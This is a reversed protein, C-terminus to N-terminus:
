RSEETAPSRYFHDWRQRRELAARTGETVFWRRCEELDHDTNISLAAFGEPPILMWGGASWPYHGPEWHRVLWLSYRATTALRENEKQIVQILYPVAAPDGLVGMNYLAEIRLGEDRAETAMEEFVLCQGRDPLRALVAMAVLADHAPGTRAAAALQEYLKQERRRETHDPDLIDEPYHLDLPQSTPRTPTPACGLILLSSLTVLIRHM